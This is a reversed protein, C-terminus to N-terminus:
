NHKFGYSINPRLARTKLQNKLQELKISLSDKNRRFNSVTNGGQLFEEKRSKFEFLKLKKELDIKKQFAFSRKDITRNFHPPNIKRPSNNNNVFGTKSNSFAMQKIREPDFSAPREKFSASQQRIRQIFKSYNPKEKQEQLKEPNYFRSSNQTVQRNSRYSDNMTDNGITRVRNNSIISKIENLKTLYGKSKDFANQYNQRLLEDYEKQLKKKFDSFVSKEAKDEDEQREEDLAENIKVQNAFFFSFIEEEPNESNQKFDNIQELILNFYDIKTEYDSEKENLQAILNEGTVELKKKASNKFDKLQDILENTIIDFKKVISLSQTKSNQKRIEFNKHKNELLSKCVEVKNLMDQFNQLIEPFCKKLPKVFEM